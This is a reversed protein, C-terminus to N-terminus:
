DARFVKEYLLVYQAAITRDRFRDANAYGNRVLQERYENDDIVRHIGRRISEVSFPDVFCAASGAVEPMSSVNSTVVPRGVANAEVIPMGFGEYTSIFSVIDAACYTEYMQEETLDSVASFEIGAELLEQTQGTTVRGVIHLHCRSGVLAQILRSLNKNKKTGVHLIRPFTTNFPRICPRYIPSIANPIVVIKADPIRVHSQLQRKADESIVTVFKSRRAPLEFWLLKLAWRRLGRLRELSQCDHITLITRKRDLVLALFHIDGTIHNVDRQNRYAWMLMALRRWLGKSEHPAVTPEVSLNPAQMAKRLTAFLGEISHQGSFPRRHFHAIKLM